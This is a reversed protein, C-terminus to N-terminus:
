VSIFIIKVNKYGKAEAYGSSIEHLNPNLMDVDGSVEGKIYLNIM